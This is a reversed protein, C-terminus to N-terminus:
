EQSCQVGNLRNLIRRKKGEVHGFVEKNWITLKQQLTVLKVNDEENGRWGERMVEEFSEHMHWMVEYRFNRRRFEQKNTCLNVLLPHHDSGVKTQRSVEANEFRELWQINCLCRDLRKYVRELGEWKPGKWTFFLGKAEVDIFECEQIWENFVRCRAENVRGGGKSQIFQEDKALVDIQIDDRRWVIWIGSSFGDAEVRVSHKFGWNKITKHAKAGSIRPELIVVVNSWMCSVRKDGDVVGHSDELEMDNLNTVRVGHEGLHLNEKDAINMQRGSDM